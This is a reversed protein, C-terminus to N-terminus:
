MTATTSNPLGLPDPGYSNSGATGKQFLLILALYINYFPIILLWFHWGPKELDHLRKVVFMSDVVILILYIIGPLAPVSRLIGMLIGAVIGFLIIFGFYKIRNIRGSWSFLSMDM